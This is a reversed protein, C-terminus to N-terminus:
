APVRPHKAALRCIGRSRALARASTDEKREPPHLVASAIRGPQPRAADVSPQRTLTSGTIAEAITM